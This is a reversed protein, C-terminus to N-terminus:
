FDQSWVYRGEEEVLCQFEVTDGQSVATIDQDAQLSIVAEAGVFVELEMEDKVEEDDGVDTNALHCKWVGAEELSISPFSIGCKTSSKDWTFGWATEERGEEGGTTTFTTDGNHQWYCWRFM